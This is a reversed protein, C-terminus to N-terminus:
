SDHNTWTPATSGQALPYTGMPLPGLQRHGGGCGHTAARRYRGTSVWDGNYV